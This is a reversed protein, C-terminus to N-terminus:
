FFANIILDTNVIKKGAYGPKKNFQLVEFYM